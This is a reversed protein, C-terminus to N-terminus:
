RSARRVPGREGSAQVLVAPLGAADLPGQEGVALPFALHALQGLTSPAGPDSAPRAARDREAVTRQLAAAGLRLWGLLARVFPKSTRTGALDGSCSRRTSPDTVGGTAAIGGGALQAAGADGGSGGSTSVLVITRQTERAAFVRALELLAATGSLEAPSGAAAADRHAVIVIPTADTSGPRQAIVTSLTREGEITQGSVRQTRVTFGGALRM